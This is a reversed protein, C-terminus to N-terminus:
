HHDHDHKHGHHHDHTHEHKHDHSHDHEHDHHDHGCGPGHVHGKPTNEDELLQKSRSAMNADQDPDFADMSTLVRFGMAKIAAAANDASAEGRPFKVFTNGLEVPIGQASLFRVVRLLLAPNQSSYIHLKTRSGAAVPNTLNM